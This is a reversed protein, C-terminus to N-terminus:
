LLVDGHAQIEVLSPPRVRVGLESIQELTQVRNERRQLSILPLNSLSRGLSNERERTPPHPDLPTKDRSSAWQMSSRDHMDTYENTYVCVHVYLGHKCKLQERPCYLKAM